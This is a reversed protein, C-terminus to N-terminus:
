IEGMEEYNVKPIKKLKENYTLSLRQEMSNKISKLSAGYNSIGMAVGIMSFCKKVTKLDNNNKQQKKSLACINKELLNQQKEQNKVKKKVKKIEKELSSLKEEHEKANEMYEEMQMSLLNLFVLVKQMDSAMQEKQEADRKQGQIVQEVVYNGTGMNVNDINSIDGIGKVGQYSMLSRLAMSDLGTRIESMNLFNRKKKM